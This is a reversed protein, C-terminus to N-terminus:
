HPPDVLGAKAAALLASLPVTLMPGDTNKSDRVAGVHGLEVCDGQAQSRVSRRWRVNERPVTTM